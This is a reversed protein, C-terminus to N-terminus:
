RKLTQADLRQAVHDPRLTSSRQDRAVALKQEGTRSALPRTVVLQGSRRIISRHRRRRSRGGYGAVTRASATAVPVLRVSSVSPVSRIRRRPRVRRGGEGRGQEAIDPQHQESVSRHREHVCRDVASLEM